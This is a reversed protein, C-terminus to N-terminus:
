QGHVEGGGKREEAEHRRKKTTWYEMPNLHFLVFVADSVKYQKHSGRLILFLVLTQTEATNKKNMKYCPKVPHLVRHRIRM